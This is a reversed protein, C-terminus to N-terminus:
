YGALWDRMLMRGASSYVHTPYLHCDPTNVGSVCGNYALLARDVNGGHRALYAAFIRAGHCINARPDELDGSACGWAGAHFPMVQMLGVAGMFSRVKPDLWPNEVLLVSALVRPDIGAERGESVLALAVSRVFDGDKHFPSLMREVPAVSGEWFAEVRGAGLSIVAARVEMEQLRLTGEARASQLPSPREPAAFALVSALMPALLFPTTLVLGAASRKPDQRKEL